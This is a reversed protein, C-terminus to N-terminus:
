VINIERASKEIPEIPPLEKLLSGSEKLKRASILVRSELSAVGQNYSEVATNLSRGVKNWYETLIGIREYLEGGLRAIERASKSLSEQKWGHAVARLIAILTTPTAIIINQDAGVEILSPDAQLAASFFAEAPLFLIVYEPAPDLQKWYEKASLEKIHKRVLVAHEMLKLKRTEDDQLDAAELYAGLPAKADVAIQRQGPLRVILDPRLLRGQGEFTKQEYFDCHNILGALEVVRRLHVEGWSGRTQPSKFAQVLRATEIRLEKESLVLGEIQKSLAGYAGERRKELERQHENLRNMSEKLPQLTADALNMFQKGNKELADFSMAKFENKMWLWLAAFGGILVLVVLILM